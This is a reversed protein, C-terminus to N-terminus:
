TPEGFSRLGRIFSDHNTNIDNLKFAEGRAEKARLFVSADCDEELYATDGKRYSYRSIQDDIGLALIETMPVELWAHGPDAHFTYNTM